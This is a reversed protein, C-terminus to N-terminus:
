RRWTTAHDDAAGEEASPDIDEHIAETDAGIAAVEAAIADIKRTTLAQLIVLAWIGAAIVGLLVRTWRDPGAGQTHEDAM